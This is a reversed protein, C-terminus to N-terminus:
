ALSRHKPHVVSAKNLDMRRSSQVSSNDAQAPYEICTFPCPGASTTYTVACAALVAVDWQETLFKAFLEMREDEQWM